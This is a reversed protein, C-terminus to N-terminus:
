KLHKKAEELRMWLAILAIEGMEPDDYQDKMGDILELVTKEDDLMVFWWLQVLQDWLAGNGNENIFEHFIDDVSM